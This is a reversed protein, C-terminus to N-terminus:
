KRSTLLVVNEVHHTHPFMDVPQVKEVRYAHDLLALDRAQTAPNCSVYVIKNPAAFLLVKIVDEHMGARPPDTIIVDPKGHKNVFDENLVDKMDGAFFDTNEINNITSNVKADEVAASVYELGIVTKAKQSVFNAITGTGTYLDYVIENGTLQAFDRTIKYLEYAQDGNTQYFSKPGIRFTLLQESSSDIPMQEEIYLSGYYNVVDLDHFTDNGKQNIIYNLSSIEPFKEKVFQLLKEIAAEDNDFFQVIVMIQGTNATRIIVNRLLGTQNVLDFYALNNKTAYDNVALRIKNSPEPQLYCHDVNLIRDFRKPIHFGLGNKFVKEESAEMEEKTIWRNNSFTFELKNRYYETKKSHLIPSIQPLVVKAIRQLNDTVHQQKFLLQNEYSIHQWKCGGCLGYHSCFPDIRAESYSHFKIPVGEMFTKKKRTIRIDVVDGPAVGEVFIVQDNHHAICKGEAAGNEIQIHELIILKRGKRAM